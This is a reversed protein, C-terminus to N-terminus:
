GGLVLYLITLSENDLPCYEMPKYKGNVLVIYDDKESLGIAAICDAICDKEGIKIEFEAKKDPMKQILSGATIIKITKSM